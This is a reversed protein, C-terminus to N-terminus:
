TKSEESRLRCCSSLIVWNFERPVNVHLTEFFSPFFDEESMQSWRTSGEMDVKYRSLYFNKLTFM